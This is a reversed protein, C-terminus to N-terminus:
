TSQALIVEQTKPDLAIRLKLWRPRCENREKFSLWEGPGFTRLGSSDWVIANPPHCSLKALEGEFERSRRCIISYHPIPLDALAALSQLLGQTQRYALGLILRILACVFMATRSYLYPRGRQRKPTSARWNVLEEQSIWVELKSRDVLSADCQYWNRRTRRPHSM